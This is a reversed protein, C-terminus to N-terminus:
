EAIALELYKHRIIGGGGVNQFIIDQGRRSLYMESIDTLGRFTWTHTFRGDGNNRFTNAGRQYELTYIPSTEGVNPIVFDYDPVEEDECQIAMRNVPNQKPNLRNYTDSSLCNYTGPFIYNDGDYDIPDLSVSDIAIGDNQPNCVKGHEPLVKACNRRGGANYDISDQMTTAFQSHRTRSTFLVLAVVMIFLIMTMQQSLQQM